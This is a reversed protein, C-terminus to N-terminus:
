FKQTFGVYFRRGITDYVTVDTVSSGSGFSNIGAIPPTKDALNLIGFRLKTNTPAITYAGTLDYYEVAPLSWGLFGLFNGNADYNGNTLPISVGGIYRVTVLAEAGWGSWGIGLTGRNKAYFGFQKNDTGAIEETAAGPAPTNKYVMLHTVDLTINFNGFDTKRLVYAASLDVGNTVLTGLNFTPQSVSIVDGANVGSTYRSFLSCFAQAGTAACQQLAYNPDLQTLLNNVTYDWYDLSFSLGPVYSPDYVFGITKVDGTEPKLNTNSLLLGTVQNQPEGFGNPVGACATTLYPFEATNVGNYGNCVDNLTPSNAKPANSIDAVTPARYVQSYTGRVLLDKVPRYEVKAQGKTTSGFLSYDSYRVGLDLNLAYAGPLKSLIPTFVQAYVEKVNYGGQSDGGCAEQSIQCNLYDPPQAVTISSTQFQDSLETYSAGIAGLMEGAPLKWIPGNFDLTASESQYTNAINYYAAIESLAAQQGALNLNFIDVPICGSIPNTPTGCTPNTAGPGAYFSPGVANQLKNFFLYGSTGQEQELENYSVNLDYEWGSEWVKGKVGVNSMIADSHSDFYRDGVGGLRLEFNPNAGGVLTGGGFDSGFPNYISDASIVIQDDNADFPLPALQAASHTHNYIVNAYTTIYDNIQFNLKTFFSTREQPTVNLNYPQFNFHDDNPGGNNFCRYDSLTAGTTGAIRTVSNSDGTCGFQAQLAAPLTIRGTLTRSSGAKNLTGSYLYLANKSWNRQGMNLENQQNYNFGAEYNFHDGSGGWIAGLDHHQTDHKSSEGWDGTLELGNFDKRTVFNVVGAIADSGYIAGAGEKLVDVHDILNLPIMNVDVGDGPVSGNMGILNVRRGDILILTRQADLGRLEINSEGFGGGNNISPNTAQGAIAPIRSILDGVTNAGSQEITAQDMVFVPSAIEVDVRRVHSGTVVVDELAESAPADPSPGAAADAALAAHSYGLSAAAAGATGVAMGVAQRLSSNLSM